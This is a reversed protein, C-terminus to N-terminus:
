GKSFHRFKVNFIKLQSGIGGKGFYLLMTTLCYIYSVKLCSIANLKDRELCLPLKELTQDDTIM